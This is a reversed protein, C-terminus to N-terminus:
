DQSFALDVYATVVVLALANRPMKVVRDPSKGQSISRAKTFGCVAFASYRFNSVFIGIFSVARGRKWNRCEQTQSWNIYTWSRAAFAILDQSHIFRECFCSQLFQSRPACNWKQLYKNRMKPATCPYRITKMFVYPKPKQSLFIYLIQWGRTCLLYFWEVNHPNPDFYSWFPPHKNNVYKLTKSFKAHNTVKQYETESCSTQHFSHWLQESQMIKNLTVRESFICTYLRRQNALSEKGGEVKSELSSLCACM